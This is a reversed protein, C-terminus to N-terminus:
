IDLPDPAQEPPAVAMETAAEPPDIRAVDAMEFIYSKGDREAWVTQKHVAIVSWEEGSVMVKEGAEIHPQVMTIKEVEIMRNAGEITVFLYGNDTPSQDYGVTGQVSVIDGRRFKM